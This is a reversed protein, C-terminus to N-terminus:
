QTKGGFKKEWSTPTYIRVNDNLVDKVTCGFTHVIFHTWKHEKLYQKMKRHAVEPIPKFWINPTM